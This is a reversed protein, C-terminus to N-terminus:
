DQRVSFLCLNLRTSFIEDDKNGALRLGLMQELFTCANHQMAV